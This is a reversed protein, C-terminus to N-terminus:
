LSEASLTNTFKSLMRALAPVLRNPRYDHDAFTQSDSDRSNDRDDERGALMANPRRNRLELLRILGEGGGSETRRFIDLRIHLYFTSM